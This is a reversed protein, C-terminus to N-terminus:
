RGQAQRRVADPLAASRGSRADVWVMVTSGESYLVSADAASLIRHGLSLSSQGVRLARLEIRLTEPWSIPRRFQLEAAALVPACTESLWPGDLSALWSLRAEELYTLFTANNVHNFADLDRWRVPFDVSFLAAGAAESASDAAGAGAKARRPRAPAADPTAAPRPKPAPRKGPRPKPDPTPASSDAPVKPPSM